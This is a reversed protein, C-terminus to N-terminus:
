PKLFPDEYMTVDSLITPIVQCPLHSDMKVSRINWNRIDLVTRKVRLWKQMGNHRHSSNALCNIICDRLLFRCSELEYYSCSCWWFCLRRSLWSCCRFKLRSHRVVTLGFGIRSDNHRRILRSSCTCSGIKTATISELLIWHEQM